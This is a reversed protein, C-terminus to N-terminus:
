NIKRFEHNSPFSSPLDIDVVTDSELRFGHHIFDEVDATLDESFTVREENTNPDTLHILRIEAM